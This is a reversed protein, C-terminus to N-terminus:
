RNRPVGLERSHRCFGPYMKTNEFMEGDAAAKLNAKTDGIIGPQFAGTIELPEEGELLKFFVKAHEKEYDATDLFIAAIQEYGENKGPLCFILGTGPKPSFRRKHKRLPPRILSSCSASSFDPLACIVKHLVSSKTVQLEACTFCPIPIPDIGANKRLLDL